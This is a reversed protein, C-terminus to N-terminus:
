KMVSSNNIKIVKFETRRNQQHEEEACQVGNSCRNVLKTEGYGKWQLRSSDIGQSILYLVTAEARKESLVLNYNDNGRSDCHSGMEIDITPNNKLLLVLKNLEPKADARIEWKDFDYYINELVIPKEIIIQDLEFNVTFDKSHKQEKTSLDASLKFYGEKSCFLTYKVNPELKFKYMGNKDTLVNIKKRNDTEDILDISVDGMPTGKEKLTVLGKVNFVLDNKKFEYIMDPSNRCSTIFGSKGDENLVFGFDDAKSNLPYRLNEVALWKKNEDDYSTSFIDLGGMNTHSDSSFYLTGDKSMFPTMENGATNIENGLNEPTAWINDDFTTRYIDTGGYGGPMDSIFYLTKEDKSICPHGVSYDDSNFPLAELQQWNDDVLKAKFLQLNNEGNSNEKLKKKKYNSRTFYVVDGAKNFSAPGEHYRGNIEGKLVLPSSWKGTTDKEAFYLDLYSNGTWPNQRSKTLEFKEAAFVIGNKYPVAAFASALEYFRIENLSFETPYQMFFNLSDCSAMLMKADKDNPVNALYKKFWIKSNAYDGKHMLIKAYYFMNISESEPYNVAESFLTDAKDLDNILRYCNALKIKADHNDKKAIVKNYHEIAKSYQLNAFETNAKKHFYNTCGVFCISIVFILLKIIPKKM